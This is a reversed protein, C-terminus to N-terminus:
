KDCAEIAFLSKNFYLPLLFSIFCCLFMSQCCVRISGSRYNDNVISLDEFSIDFGQVDEVPSACMIGVMMIQSRDIVPLYHLRMMKSNGEEGETFNIHVVENERKIRLKLVGPANISV